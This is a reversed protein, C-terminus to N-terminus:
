TKIKKASEPSWEVHYNNIDINHRSLYELAERKSDKLQQKYYAGNGPKYVALLSIKLVPNRDKKSLRTSEDNEDLVSAEQPIGYDPLSYDIKYGITEHPIHQLEPFVDEFSQSKEIAREQEEKSQQNYPVYKTTFSFNVDGLVEGKESEPSKLEVSYSRGIEMPGRISYVVRNDIIQLKGLVGPRIVFRELNSEAPKQSFHIMIDTTNSASEGDKPTTGTVRFQLLWWIYWVLLAVFIVVIISIVRRQNTTLSLEQGNNM